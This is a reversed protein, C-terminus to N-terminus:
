SSALWGLAKLAKVIDGITYAKTGSGGTFTSDDNVPTGAGAVFGATQGTTAPQVVPPAGFAGIKRAASSTLVLSQAAAVDLTLAGVEASITVTAADMSAVGTAANAQLTLNGNSAGNGDATIAVDGGGELIVDATGNTRLTLDGSTVDFLVDGVITATLGGAAAQLTLGTDGRVSVTGALATIGLNSSELRVETNGAADQMLVSDSLLQVADGTISGSGTTDILVGKTGAPTISVAGTFTTDGAVTGGSFGPSAGNITVTGVLDLEVGTAGITMLATSGSPDAPDSTINVLTTRGGGYARNLFEILFPQGHSVIASM